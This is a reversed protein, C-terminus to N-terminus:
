YQETTEALIALSCWSVFRCPSSANFTVASMVQFYVLFCGSFTMPLPPFIKDIELLEPLMQSM